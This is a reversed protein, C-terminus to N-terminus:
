RSQLTPPPALIRKVVRNRDWLAPDDTDVRIVFYQAGRRDGKEDFAIMGTAGQVPRLRRVAESVAHRGPLRGGALRIASELARLGVLTADHAEAALPGPERGFRGRFGRAFEGADPYFSAPGALTVYHLGVAARGALRALESYHLGDPGLFAARVGGDRAQKFFAAGEDFSGAFFVIAPNTSRIRAITPAFNLSQPVPDAGVIQIGLRESAARFSEALGRGYTTGESLLYASTAGLETRAFHAAVSGQVDDRGIVRNVNPRGRDTVAPDTNAPSIMALGVSQYVESAAISVPSNLHGIVLLVTPDAVLTHANATGVDPRARDDLSLLEIAFGASEIAGGFREIALQVGLRVAEGLIAQQGSLPGQMAIRVEPVTVRAWRTTGAPGTLAIADRGAVIYSGSLAQQRASVWRWRGRSAEFRGRERTETSLDYTGAARVELLLNSPIGGAVVATEWVGVLVPDVPGDEPAGDELRKWRASGLLGGLTVTDRDSLTYIGTLTRTPGIWKWRGQRAEFRGRERKLSKLAYNGDATIRLTLTSHVGDRTTSTQWSGVLAPDVIAAHAPRAALLAALILLAWAHPM